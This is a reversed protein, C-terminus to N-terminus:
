ENFQMNKQKCTSKIKSKNLCYCKTRQFKVTTQIGTQDADGSAYVRKKSSMSLALKSAQKWIVSLCSKLFGFFFSKLVSSQKAVNQEPFQSTSSIISNPITCMQVPHFLTQKPWLCHLQMLMQASILKNWILLLRDHFCLSTCYFFPRETITSNQSVIEKNTKKNRKTKLFNYINRVSKM